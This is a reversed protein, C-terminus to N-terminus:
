KGEDQIKKERMRVKKYWAVDTGQIIFMNRDYIVLRAYDTLSAGFQPTVKPSAVTMM